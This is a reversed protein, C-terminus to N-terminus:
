RTTFAGSASSTSCDPRRSPLVFSGMWTGHAATNMVRARGFLPVETITVRPRFAVTAQWDM